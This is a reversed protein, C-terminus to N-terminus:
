FSGVHTRRIPPTKVSKVYCASDDAGRAFKSLAGRKGYADRKSTLMQRM